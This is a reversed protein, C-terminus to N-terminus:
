QSWFLFFFLFRSRSQFMSPTKPLRPPARGAKMIWNVLM